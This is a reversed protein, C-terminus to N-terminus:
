LTVPTGLTGKARAPRRFRRGGRQAQYCPGTFLLYLNRLDRWSGGIGKTQELSPFCLVPQPALLSHGHLLSRRLVGQGAGCFARPGRGRVPLALFADEFSGRVASGPRRQGCSESRACM